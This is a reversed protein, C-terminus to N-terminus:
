PPFFKHAPCRYLFVIGTKEDSSNPIRESELPKVRKAAKKGKRKKFLIQVM